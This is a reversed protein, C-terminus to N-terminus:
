ILCIIVLNTYSYDGNQISEYQFDWSYEKQNSLMEINKDVKRVQCNHEWSSFNQGLHPSFDSIFFIVNAEINASVKEVTVVISLPKKNLKLCKVNFVSRKYGIINM